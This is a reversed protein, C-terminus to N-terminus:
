RDKRTLIHNDLHVQVIELNAIGTWSKRNAFSVTYHDFQVIDAHTSCQVSRSEVVAVVAVVFVALEDLSVVEVM